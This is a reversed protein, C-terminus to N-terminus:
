KRNYDHLNDEQERIEHEAIAKGAWFLGALVLFGVYICVATMM